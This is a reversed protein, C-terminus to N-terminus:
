GGPRGSPSWRAASRSSSRTASSTSSCRACACPPDGRLGPGTVGEAVYYVFELGEQHRLLEIESCTPPSRCNVERLDFDVLNRSDIKGAEIKSLDLIDNLLGAPERGLRVGALSASGTLQHLLLGAMGLVGNMPTRIEHSMTALFQSKAESAAEAQLKAHELARQNSLLATRANHLAQGMEILKERTTEFERLPFSPLHPHFEGAPIRELVGNLEQLPIALFEASRSAKRSLYLLFFGYFVVLGGGLFYGIQGLRHQLGQIDAFVDSGGAILVLQWGPGAITSWSALHPQGALTFSM